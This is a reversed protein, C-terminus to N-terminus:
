VKVLKEARSDEVPNQAVFYIVDKVRLYNYSNETTRQLENLEDLTGNFRYVVNDGYYNLVEQETM